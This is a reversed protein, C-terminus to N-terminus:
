CLISYIENWDRIWHQPLANEPFKTLDQSHVNSGSSLFGITKWGMANAPLFDKKPNDGIYIYANGPHDTEIARFRLSDPKESQYEESIYARLHALGLAQLKLRQTVARGDTLIVVAAADRQMQQLFEACVPDLVIAPSHLRYMWLLSDKTSSPLSAGIRLVDLWDEKCSIAAEFAENLSRGLLVELQNCVYRIGSRVYAREPYLTDDLDLVVVTRSLEHEVM